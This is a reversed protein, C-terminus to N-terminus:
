HGTQAVGRRFVPSNNTDIGWVVGNGASIVKIREPDTLHGWSSGTRDADTIGKRFFVVGDDNTTWVIGNSVTIRAANGPVEDWGTGAPPSQQMNIRRYIKGHRVGWLINGYVSCQTMAGPVQFWRTGIPNSPVIGARWWITGATTTAVANAGDFSITFLDGEDVPPVVVWANGTPNSASVGTRAKINGAEDWVWVGLDSAALGVASAGTVPAWATGMKNDATVGTRRYINNQSAAWVNLGTQSTSLGTFSAPTGPVSVWSTGEMVPGFLNGTAGDITAVDWYNEGRMAGDVGIRYTRIEGSPFFIRCVADSSLFDGSSYRHVFIKYQGPELKNISITEPGNGNVDDVDLSADATASRCIKGNWRVECGSPTMMHLDLDSIRENWTLVVKLAGNPMNPAMYVRSDDTVGSSVTITRRFTIFGQASSQLVYEGPDLSISYAGTNSVAANSLVETGRLVQVNAGTMANGNM